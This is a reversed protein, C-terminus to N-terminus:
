MLPVSTRLELARPEPIVPEESVETPVILLPVHCPETTAPWYPPVPTAFVPLVIVSPPLKVVAPANATVNVTPAVVDKVSGADPVTAVRAPDSDSVFLFSPLRVLLPMTVVDAPSPVSLTVAVVPEPFTTRAM